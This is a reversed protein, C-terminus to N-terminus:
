IDRKCSSFLFTFINQLGVELGIQKKKVLNYEFNAKLGQQFALLTKERPSGLQQIISIKPQNKPLIKHKYNIKATIRHEKRNLSFNL